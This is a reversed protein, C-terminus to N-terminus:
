EGSSETEASDDAASEDGAAKKAKHEARKEKWKARMEEAKAEAEDKTIQGDANADIDTFWKEHMVMFEDKTVIGDKDADAKEFMREGKHHKCDDAGDEALALPAGILVFASTLMLLNKM